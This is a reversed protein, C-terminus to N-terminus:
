IQANMLGKIKIKIDFLTAKKFWVLLKIIILKKKYKKIIKTNEYLIIKLLNLRFLVLFNIPFM